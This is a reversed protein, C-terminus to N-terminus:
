ELGEHIDRMIKAWTDLEYDSMEEGLEKPNTYGTWITASYYRTYGTFIMDTNGNVM